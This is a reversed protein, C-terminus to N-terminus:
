TNGSTCHVWNHGHVFNSLNLVTERNGSVWVTSPYRLHERHVSPIWMLLEGNSGCIWGKENIVKRDTFDVDNRTEIEGTTFNSLRIKGDNSGSVIQQGNPSFAVSLVAGTHGAFPGAVTAGTTANWLRITKDFSGSVIHLGDPSFAVSSVWSTHGTFPGAAPEGM